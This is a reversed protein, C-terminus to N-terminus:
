YQNPTLEVYAAFRESTMNMNVAANRRELEGVLAVSELSIQREKLHLAKATEALNRLEIRVDYM